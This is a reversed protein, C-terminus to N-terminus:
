YHYNTTITITTIFTTTTIAAAAADYHSSHTFNMQKHRQVIDGSEAHLDLHMGSYRKLLYLVLWDLLSNEAYM